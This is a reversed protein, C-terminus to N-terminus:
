HFGTTIQVQRNSIEKNVKNLEAKNFAVAGWIVLMVLGGKTMKKSKRANDYMEKIGLGSASLGVYSAYSDIFNHVEQDAALEKNTLSWIGWQPNVFTTYLVNDVLKGQLQRNSVSRIKQMAYNRQVQPLHRYLVTACMADVEDQGANVILSKDIGLLNALFTLQATKNNEINYPLNKISISSSM